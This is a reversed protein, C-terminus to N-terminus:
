ETLMPSASMCEALLQFEVKEAVLLSSWLLLGGTIKEEVIPLRFGKRNVLQWYVSFVVASANQWCCSQWASM